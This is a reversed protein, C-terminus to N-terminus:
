RIQIELEAGDAGLQASALAVRMRKPPKPLVSFADTVDDMFSLSSPSDFLWHSDEEKLQESPRHLRVRMKGDSRPTCSVEIEPIGMEGDCFVISDGEALSRTWCGAESNQLVSSLSLVAQSPQVITLYPM